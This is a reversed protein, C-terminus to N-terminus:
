RLQLVDPRCPVRNQPMVDAGDTRRQRTGGILLDFKPDDLSGTVNFPWASRSLPKGVPRPRGHVNIQKNGLNVSGTLVFQVRETEIVSGSTSVNGRDIRIPANACVIRTYGQRREESFLWPFIGLGALELLSSAVAGESIQIGANGRANRAFGMPSTFPGSIDFNASITGRADMDIDAVAFVDGLDWGSGNGSVNLWKSGSGLDAAASVNLAGGGYRLTLPGFRFNGDKATLSSHLETVGKQGVIRDINIDFELDTDVLLTSPEILQRLGAIGSPRVMPQVKRDDERVMPQVERDDGQVMPQIEREDELVLPRVDSGEGAAAPEYAARLAGVFDRARDLDALDLEASQLAGRAVPTSGEVSLTLDTDIETDGAGLEAAIDAKEADAGFTLGLRFPETSAQGADLAALFANPSPFEMDATLSAGALKTVDPWEGSASFSWLDTGTVGATLNEVRARGDHEAVTFNAELRGIDAEMNGLGGVVVSAPVSLNGAFDFERLHLTDNISGTMSLLQLDKEGRVEVAIDGLALKGDETRRISGVSVPGIEDLGIDAANTTLALNRVTLEDIGGFIQAAIGSIRVDKIREADAPPDGEPHLRVAVNVDLDRAHFADGVRGTVTLAEGTGVTVTALLDELSVGDADVVVGTEVSAEGDYDLDVGAAQFMEALSGVALTLQGTSAEDDGARPAADYQLTTEGLITSLRASGDAPLNGEIEFEVSNVEGAADLTAAGEALQEVNLGDLLFDFKFESPRDDVHLELDSIRITKDKLFDVIRVRKRDEDSPEPEEGEPKAFTRTWSKTGDELIILQARMGEVVIEDFKIQGTLLAPTRVKFDAHDLAALEVGDITESPINLGFISLSIRRGVVARVDGNIEVPQGISSSLVGEALDRRSDSFMPLALFLWGAIIGLGLAALVVVLIRKVVRM